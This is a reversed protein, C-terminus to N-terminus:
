QRSVDKRNTGIKKYIWEKELCELTSTLGNQKLFDKVLQLPDTIM